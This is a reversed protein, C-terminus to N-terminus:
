LFCFAREIYGNKEYFQHAQIRQFGSDLELKKCGRAKATEYAELFLNRGIGNGRYAVDIIM